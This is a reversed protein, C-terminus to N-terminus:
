NDELYNKWEKYLTSEVAGMAQRDQLGLQYVPLGDLGLSFCGAEQAVLLGAAYDWLMM